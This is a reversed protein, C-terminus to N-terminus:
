VVPASQLGVLTNALDEQSGGALVEVGLLGENVVLEQPAYQNEVYGQPFALKGLLGESM